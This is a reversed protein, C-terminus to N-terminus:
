GSATPYWRQPSPPSPGHQDRERKRKSVSRCFIKVPDPAVEVNTKDQGSGLVSAVRGHEPTLQVSSRQVVTGIISCQSLSCYTLVLASFAEELGKTSKSPLRTAVSFRYRSDRGSEAATRRRPLRRMKEGRISPPVVCMGTKIIRSIRRPANM